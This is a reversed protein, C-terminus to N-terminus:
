SKKLKYIEYLSALTFVTQLPIFVPDKLYVSYVFLGVGGCAFLANRRLPAKTLVGITILGLGVAGIAKFVLPEMYM